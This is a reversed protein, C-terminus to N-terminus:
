PVTISIEQKVQSIRKVFPTDRLMSDALNAIETRALKISPFHQNKLLVYWDGGYRQTKYLWLQQGLQENTIYDQLISLNAMAAIQIVFDESPLTLLMDPKPYLFDDSLVQEVNDLRMETREPM